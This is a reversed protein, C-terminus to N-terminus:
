RIEIMRRLITELFLGFRQGFTVALQRDVLLVVGDHGRCTVVGNGILQLTLLILNPVEM